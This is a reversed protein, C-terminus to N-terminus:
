FRGPLRIVRREEVGGREPPDMAMDVLVKAIEGAYKKEDKDLKRGGLVRTAVEVSQLIETSSMKDWERSPVIAGQPNMQQEVGYEEKLRKSVREVEDVEKSLEEIDSEWEVKEQPGMVERLSREWEAEQPKVAERLRKEWDVESM